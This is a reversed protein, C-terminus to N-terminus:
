HLEKQLAAAIEICIKQKTRSLLIANGANLLTKKECQKFREYQEAEFDQTHAGLGTIPANPM